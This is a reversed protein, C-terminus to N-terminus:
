ILHSIMWAVQGTMIMQSGGRHVFVVAAPVAVTDEPSGVIHELKRVANVGEDVAAAVDLVIGVSGHAFIGTQTTKAHM